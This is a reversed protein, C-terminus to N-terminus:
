CRASCRRRGARAATPRPRTSCPSGPTSPRTWSARTADVNLRRGFNNCGLGAVSVVLGSNGLARYRMNRGKQRARHGPRAGITAEALRATSGPAPWGADGAATPGCSRGRPGAPRSVNRCNARMTCPQDIHGCPTARFGLQSIMFYTVVSPLDMVCNRRSKRCSPRPWALTMFVDVSRQALIRASGPYLLSPPARCSPHPMQGVTSRIRRPM